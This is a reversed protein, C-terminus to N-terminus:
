GAGERRHRDEAFPIFEARDHPRVAAAGADFEVGPSPATPVFCDERRGRARGAGFPAGKLARYGREVVKEAAPHFDETTALRAM